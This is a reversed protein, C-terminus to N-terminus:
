WDLHSPIQESCMTLVLLVLLLETTGVTGGRSQPWHRRQDDAVPWMRGTGVLTLNVAEGLRDRYQIVM